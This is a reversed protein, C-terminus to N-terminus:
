KNINSKSTLPIEVNISTGEGMTSLVSANGNLMKARNEIGSLGIGAKVSKRDFGIGNDEITLLLCEDDCTIQIFVETANAHRLINQIAEQVIRYAGVVVVDNFVEGNLKTYFSFKLHTTHQLNEVLNQISKKLGAEKLSVPMINHAIQRTESIASNLINQLSDLNNRNFADANNLMENIRYSLGALNQGLSDHLDKAFRKREREETEMVANVVQEAASKWEIMLELQHAIAELLQSESRELLVQGANQGPFYLELSGTKEDGTHLDLKVHPKAPFDSITTLVKEKFKIKCQAPGFRTIASTMIDALEELIDIINLEPNATLNSINLLLQLENNKAQLDKLLQKNESRLLSSEAAKEITLKLEVPDWPKKVFRYVEAENIADIISDVDQYGTILIREVDPHNVKTEALFEVGSIEPMRQDSIVVQYTRNNLLERAEDSNTAIDVEFHKQFYVQFVKLNSIEDDLYLIRKNINM